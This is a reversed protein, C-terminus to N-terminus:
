MLIYMGRQQAKTDLKKINVICNGHICKQIVHINIYTIFICLSQWSILISNKHLYKKENINFICIDCILFVYVDYTNNRTSYLGDPYM